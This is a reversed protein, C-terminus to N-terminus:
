GAEFSCCSGGDLRCEALRVSHGLVQSVMMKEMACISRDHEALDPYPCAHIRFVPLQKEAEGGPKASGVSSLDQEKAAAVSEGFCANVDSEPLAGGFPTTEPSVEMSGQCDLETCPANTVKTARSPKQMGFDCAVRRDQFLRALWEMREALTLGGMRESYRGAMRTALRMLLGRRIEENPIARVEEWLIHALDAFNNGFERLGKKTISYHHGPRGRNGKAVVREVLGKGMLRALRQRVATPTVQLSAAMSLVALKGKCRLLELLADDSSEQLLEQNTEM